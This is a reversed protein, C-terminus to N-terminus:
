RRNRYPQNFIRDISWGRFVRNYLSQRPIGLHDAWEIVSKTQGNYTIMRNTRRNKSQEKMSAWRCNEPSYGKNNDIRELSMEKPREGMDSLFNAYDNWRDCVTIGRGGYHHYVPSNPDNCRQRMNCWVKYSSPYSNKDGHKEATAGHKLNM